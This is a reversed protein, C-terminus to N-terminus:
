DRIAVASAHTSDYRSTGAKNIRGTLHVVIKGSRRDDVVEFEGIYETYRYIVM